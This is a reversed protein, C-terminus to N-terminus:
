LRHPSPFAQVSTGPKLAPQKPNRRKWGPSRGTTSNPNSRPAERRHSVKSRSMSEPSPSRKGKDGVNLAAADSQPIHPGQRHRFFLDMVTLLPTGAAPWKAPISHVTPTSSERDIPRAFKQTLRTPAQAGLPFKGQRIRTPGEAPRSNRSSASPKCNKSSTAQRNCEPQPCHRRDWAHSQDSNKKTAARRSRFLQQRSQFIKEQADLAQNRSAQADAEAKQSKRRGTRRTHPPRTRRKSSSQYIGQTDQCPRRGPDAIRPALRWCNEPAFGPSAASSKLYKRCRLLSRPSSNAAQARPFFSDSAHHHHPKSRPKKWPFAVQFSDSNPEDKTENRRLLRVSAAPGHLSSLGPNQKLHRISAL